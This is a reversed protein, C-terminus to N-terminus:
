RCDASEACRGTDPPDAAVVMDGGDRKAAYMAADAAALMATTGGEGLEAAGVSVSLVVTADQLEVPRSSVATVVTRGVDTAAALDRRPLLVVFEDGGFRGVPAGVATDALRSAIERLVLDGALHGHEDNVQKFADGDILLLSLPRDQLRASAAQFEVELELAARTLCGTVPDVAALQALEEVSHGALAASPPSTSGPPAPRPRGRRETPHLGGQRVLRHLAVTGVGALVQSVQADTVVEVVLLGILIAVGVGLTIRLDGGAHEFRRALLYASVVLLAVVYSSHVLAVAGSGLPRGSGLLGDTLQSTLVLVVLVTPTVAATIIVGRGPRWCPWTARRAIITLAAAGIATAPVGIGLDVVDPLLALRSSLVTLCWLAVAAAAVLVPRWADDDRLRRAADFAVGGALMAAMGTLGLM